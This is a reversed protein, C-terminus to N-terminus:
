AFKNRDVVQLKFAEDIAITMRLSRTVGVVERLHEEAEDDDYNLLERLLM